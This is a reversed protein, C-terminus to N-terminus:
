YDNYDSDGGYPGAGSVAELEQMSLHPNPPLVLNASSPTDEHVNLAFGEPVKVDFEAEIAAKPDDLLRSRFDADEGAKEILSMRMESATKM